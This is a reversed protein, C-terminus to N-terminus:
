PKDQWMKTIFWQGDMKRLDLTDTVTGRKMGPGVVRHNVTHATLNKASYDYTFSVHTTSPEAGNQINVNRLNRVEYNSFMRGFFERSKRVYDKPRLGEDFYGVRPACLNAYANADSAVMAQTYGNIVAMVEDKTAVAATDASPSPVPDAPAEAPVTPATPATPAPTPPTDPSQPPPGSAMRVMEILPPQTTGDERVEVILEENEYGSREVRLRWNGVGVNALELPSKGKPEGNLFVDAGSPMTNVIIPSTKPPNGPAPTAAIPAPTAASPAEPSSTPTAAATDDSGPPRLWWLCFGAILLVAAVSAVVVPWRSRPAEVSNMGKGRGRAKAENERGGKELWEAIAKASQPRNEPEKALCSAVIEEWFMPIPAGDRGLDARRQVMLPASASHIQAAVNGRFFPPKSTLLEYIVAGFSYIDDSERPLDGLAQQPSMYPLTGSVIQTRTARSMSDAIVSAIGFDTIKLRGSADIMLNSPKLDRHVVGAVSHAYHLAEALQIMWLRIEETDFCHSERKYRLQSLTDGEVYEMSIAAVSADQEFDYIRMIFPHTIKRSVLTEHRLEELAEPERVLEDAMFKLAVMCFLRLDQALYVVGRGGRGLERHILYRNFVRQEPVFAHFTGTTTTRVADPPSSGEQM